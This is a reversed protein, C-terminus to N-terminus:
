YDLILVVRCKKWDSLVDKHREYVDKPIPIYVLDIRRRYRRTHIKSEFEIALKSM